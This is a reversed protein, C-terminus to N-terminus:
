RLKPWWTGTMILKEMEMASADFIALAQVPTPTGTGYKSKEIAIVGRAM